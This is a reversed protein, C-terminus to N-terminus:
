LVEKVSLNDISGVFAADIVIARVTLPALANNLTLNLSYHGIATIVDSFIGQTMSGLGVKLEGSTYATVDFEIKYTKTNQISITQFTINEYTTTGTNIAAVGGTFTVFGESNDWGTGNTFSGNSVLESGYASVDSSDTQATYVKSSVTYMLKSGTLQLNGYKANLISDVQERTYFYTTASVGESKDYKNNLQTQIDSTVGKVRNIETATPTVGKIKSWNQGYSLLVFSVMTM